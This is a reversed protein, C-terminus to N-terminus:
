RGSKKRSVARMPKKPCKILNIWLKKIFALSKEIVKSIIRNLCFSSLKTFKERIEEEKQRSKIYEM